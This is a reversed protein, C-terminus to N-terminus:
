LEEVPCSTTPKRYDEWQMDCYCFGLWICATATRRAEWCGSCLLRELATMECAKCKSGASRARSSLATSYIHTVTMVLVKNEKGEAKESSYQSASPEEATFSILRRKVSGSQENGYESLGVGAM